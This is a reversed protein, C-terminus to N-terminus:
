CKCTKKKKGVSGRKEVKEIYTKIDPVKCATNGMQVDVKGIEEGARKCKETLEPIASGLAILYGNMVYRLRNGSNHIEQVVRDILQEHFNIDLHENPTIGIYSSLAAWAVQQVSEDESDIWETCLEICYPSEALNWAVAYESIMYWTSNKAWHLLQEKTFASPDAILGALYQADGHMTDFLQLALDQDQKVKKQIIKMDGVKVGDFNEPAGHNKYIKRTQETGKEKLFLMVEDLKM